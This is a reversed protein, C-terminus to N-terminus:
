LLTLSKLLSHNTEPPSYDYSDAQMTVTDLITTMFNWGCRSM